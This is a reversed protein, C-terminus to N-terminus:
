WLVRLKILREFEDQSCCPVYRGQYHWKKNGSEYEVAPGDVRHLKGDIFWAKYTVTEIAPGDERHMKGHHYWEKRGNKYELAPGDMRHLRGDLYYKVTGNQDVIKDPLGDKM